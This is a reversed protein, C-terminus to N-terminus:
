PEPVALKTDRSPPLLTSPVPFPIRQWSRWCSAYILDSSESFIENLRNGVNRQNWEDFNKPKDSPDRTRAELAADVLDDLCKAKEEKDLVAINNQFPYPVWQGQYRM